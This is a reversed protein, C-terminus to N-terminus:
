VMTPRSSVSIWKGRSPKLTHVLQFPLSKALNFSSPFLLLWLCSFLLWKQVILIEKSFNSISQAAKPMRSRNGEHSKESQITMVRPVGWFGLVLRYVLTSDEGLWFEWNRWQWTYNGIIVSLNLHVWDMQSSWHSESSALPTPLENSFCARRDLHSVVSIVLMDHMHFLNNPAPYASRAPCPPECRYNWCELLLPLLVAM